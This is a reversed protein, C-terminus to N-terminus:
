NFKVSVIKSVGEEEMTVGYLTKSAEMTRKNHTVVIFQTNNSFMQLADTFRKINIDDLPADVEDLICFPSPKVLYIAFLLSIATLTKEGGSLLNLTQLKKGKTRVVIDIDGELPDESEELKLTGEGAEFFSHFVNEFHSKIQNYTELFQKRATKNIKDITEMLSREAELLDDRQKTLFKLREDEKEYENVALPNVPGLNKIRQKLLEIREETEDVNLDEFPISLEVDESYEKIIYERINEAKIRNENIELEIIRSRELTSDHQKRYRKTQNEINLIKDKLEQYNVELGEHEKEFQNREEWIQMQQQRRAESENQIQILSQEINAISAKRESISNELETLNQRSRIIDNERNKVQNDLNTVKLRVSQVDELLTQLLDNKQEFENTRLITERELENAEKQFNNVEIELSQIKKKTEFLNQRMQDLKDSDNQQEASTKASEYTLQNLKKDIEVQLKREENLATQVNEQDHITQNIKLKQRGIEAITNDLLKQLRDVESSYKKLQEKRGILLAGKIEMDGGSISGDANLIEGDGTIFRLYPYEAALAMSEDMNKTLCIDGLLIDILHQYSKECKVLSSLFKLKGPLGAREPISIKRTADLPILTIRGKKERKVISILDRAVAGTEVVVYNLANGLIIELLPAIEPDTEILDALPGIVGKIHAKQSMAFQTSKTHGEFNSVVQQFFSKRSKAQEFESIIKSKKQELTELEDRQKALDKTFSDIKATLNEISKGKTELEKNLSALHANYESTSKDRIKVAEEIEIIRESNYKLQIQAENLKEKKEALVSLKERLQQNLQDIESKEKQLKNLEQNKEDEITKFKQDQNLKQETLTELEEELSILNEQLLKIKSSFDEIENLYRTKNKKMEESKTQAVAELKNIESIQTDQKHLNENVTVLQKETNILERKYDELLAEDITIQHHSEEKIKSIEELQLQLPRINDILKHYKFKSLDIEAKKLEEVFELYRRAKGVQRSLSRVNKDIESIIDNLRTLDNRTSELKRLASKRRIKYKGVGAAEEFLQRREQKNESLISEVMKLEIISYSNSALGTDLFIDQIDKLRVPTKNLLYQSEGSRFLRRAIVIENFETKLINKNNQITLSVEAMGVPKRTKAGNFIVNEMKDSRLSTVRQEGLVWRIADVINSKGSGNPGIICSLGDNFELKTKTAFSKFGIIDLKSLYM